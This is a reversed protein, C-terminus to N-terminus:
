LAAQCRGGEPFMIMVKAAQNPQQATALAEMFATFAFRHTIMPSVDVRKSALMELVSPFEDPYAMAGKITMEKAMVHFFPLSVHQTHMAVIVVRTRFKANDFIDRVVPAAGSADIYVDTGVAPMAGHVLERGHRERILDWPDARSSNCVALAGLHEALALRTDSLDIAVVDRVGRYRLCIITALGIPGAGFVVVRDDHRIEARNVAHMAVALPEVLAGEQFTLSEPLPYLCTDQTVNRVLLFPTFGGEPGGNGIRNHAAEPNVVVRQGVRVSSVAAGVADVIGSLEHGIRMPGGGAVFLGGMAVYSLDSGCIGCAAVRVVVDNPGPEPKAIDILRVDHPAHIAVQQM